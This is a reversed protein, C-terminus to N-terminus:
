TCVFKPAFGESSLSYGGVLQILYDQRKKYLM